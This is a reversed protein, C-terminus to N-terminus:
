RRLAARAPKAPLASRPAAPAVQYSCIIWMRLWCASALFWAMNAGYWAM